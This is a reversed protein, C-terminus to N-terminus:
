TPHLNPPFWYGPAVRVQTADGGSRVAITSTLSVDDLTVTGGVLCPGHNSLSFGPGVGSARELFARSQDAPADSFYTPFVSPGGQYASAAALSCPQAASSIEHIGASGTPTRFRGTSAPNALGIESDRIEERVASLAEGLM